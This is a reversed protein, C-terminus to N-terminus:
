SVAQIWGALNYYSTVRTLKGNEAEFFAACPILYKQGTAPPLGDDDAIYSGDIVFEAAGRNGNAFIVLNVAQESYCKEMHLKFTRFAEIGVERGGENIDHAVDDSLTALMGEIDHRNFADFYDAILQDVTKM